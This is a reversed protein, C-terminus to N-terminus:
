PQAGLCLTSSKPSCLMAVVISAVSHGKNIAGKDSGNDNEVEDGHRTTHLQSFSGLLAGMVEAHAKKDREGGDEDVGEGEGIEQSGSEPNPSKSSGAARGGRPFLAVALPHLSPTVRPKIESGNERGGDGDRSRKRIGPPECPSPM